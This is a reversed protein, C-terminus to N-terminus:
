KDKSRQNRDPNVHFPSHINPIGMIKMNKKEKNELKSMKTFGHNDITKNKRDNESEKKSAQAITRLKASASDEKNEYEDGCSIKMKGKVRKIPEILEPNFEKSGLHTESTGGQRMHKKM